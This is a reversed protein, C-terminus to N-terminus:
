MMFVEGQCMMEQGFCIPGQHNGRSDAGVPIDNGDAGLDGDFWFRCEATENAYFHHVLTMKGDSNVGNM